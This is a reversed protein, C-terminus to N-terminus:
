TVGEHRAPVGNRVAAGVQWVQNLGAAHAAPLALTAFIRMEGGSYEGRRRLVGYVIPSEAIPGKSSINYTRVVVSGDAGGRFAALAQAGVMGTATPNLAWAIWGDPGAPPAVFAVDLTPDPRASPDYTWHLQARLTPLDTCNAFRINTQNFTQSRCTQSTAPFILLAGTTLLLLYSPFQAM